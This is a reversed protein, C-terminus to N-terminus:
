FVKLSYQCAAMKRCYNMRAPAHMEALVVADQGIEIIIVVGGSDVRFVRARAASHLPQPVQHDLGKQSSKEPVM